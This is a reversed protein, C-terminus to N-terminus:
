EDDEESSELESNDFMRKALQPYLIGDLHDLEHCICVAKYEDCDVVVNKGNVDTYELVLNKPRDVLGSKGPISLCGELNEQTEESKETIRPNIIKMVGNGDQMDVVVLRKLIGIQPAALGLGNADRMTEEMDDLLQLIRNDIKEVERAKKSLIPDGIIRINRIAM